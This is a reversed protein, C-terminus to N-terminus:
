LKQLSSNMCKCSKQITTMNKHTEVAVEHANRVCLDIETNMENAPDLFEQWGALLHGSKISSWSKRLSMIEGRTVPLGLVSISSVLKTWDISGKEKEVMMLTNFLAAANAASGARASWVSKALGPMTYYQYLILLQLKLLYYFNVCSAKYHAFM